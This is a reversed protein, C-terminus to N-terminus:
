PPTIAEFLKTLRLSFGPLAPHDLTENEGLTRRQEADVLTVSRKRPDVLMVLSTGAALYVLIKDEVDASRDGPSLIEVAIDLALHPTQLEEHPLGRLRENRVYSVDPVLPRTLANAPALRFRWESGTQGYAGGWDELIRFLTGQLRAHEWTPSTKQLARGRVWETEPKTESLVIEHLGM